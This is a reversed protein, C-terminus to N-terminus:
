VNRANDNGKAAKKELREAERRIKRKMPVAPATRLGKGNNGGFMMVGVYERYDFEVTIESDTASLRPM